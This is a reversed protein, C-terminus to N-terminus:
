LLLLSALYSLESEVEGPSSVTAAIEIRVHDRFRRRLRSVLTPMLRSNVGLAAATRDYEGTNPSRSLFPALASFQAAKGDQAFERELRSLAADIVTHAWERDFHHDFSEERSLAKPVDGEHAVSEIELHAIGGGRKAARTRDLHNHLFNQLARLLFSRLRGRQRDLTRLAGTQLVHAFFGQLLDEADHHTQGQRRLYTALPRQYTTFLTELAERVIHSDAGQAALVVSWHTTAFATGPTPSTGEPSGQMRLIPVM